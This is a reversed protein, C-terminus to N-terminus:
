IPFMSKGVMLHQLVGTKLISVPMHGLSAQTTTCLHPAFGLCRSHNSSDRRKGATHSAYLSGSVPPWRSSTKCCSGVVSGVTPIKLKVTGLVLLHQFMNAFITAPGLVRFGFVGQDFAMPMGLRRCGLILRAFGQMDEFIDRYSQNLQAVQQFSPSPM